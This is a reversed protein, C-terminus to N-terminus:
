TQTRRSTNSSSTTMSQQETKPVNLKFQKSCMLNLWANRNTTNLLVFYVFLVFGQLTATICFLYSFIISLHMYSCLGFIWTLGLLFFLLVSLRLQQVILQRRPNLTRQISYIICIMMFANAITVLAIPLVVGLALGYGSPYCIAAHHKFQYVSPKFSKADLLVVSLTPLLPLTWAILASILIYHNPRAVGIVTVYRQFQLFAIILMWSFIVLVSYQLAAGLILCRNWNRELTLWEDGGGSGGSLYVFLLLQLALALCLHLLVKTSAQSRWKNVLAATLFIGLLGFLSLGCGVYSIMDLLQEHAADLQQQVDELQLHAQSGGILFSFQTLHHAQCLVNFEEAGNGSCTTVGDSLWSKYNWYGCRSGEGFAKGRPLLFPLPSPLDVGAFGPISISLVKSRPRGSPQEAAEVFLGAHAYVKLIVYSAGREKLQRWLQEPVYTATELNTDRRLHKLNKNTYLFRYWFGSGSAQRDAAPSSYISIGTINACTPNVYFVSLNNSMLAQVGLNAYNLTEVGKGTSVLAESAARGCNQTPVLEQPLADMYDEFRSLLSNTANLHASLRLVQADSSMIERCISVLEAGLAASRPQQELLKAIIRATSYVDVPSLQGHAQSLLYQLRNLPVPKSRNSSDAAQLEFGLQYLQRSLQNGARCNLRKLPQWQASANCFRRRPLGYEDLCLDRMTAWEGARTCEFHNLHPEFISRGDAALVEYNHQFDQAECLGVPQVKMNHENSAAKVTSHNRAQWQQPPYHQVTSWTTSPTLRVHAQSPWLWCLLCFQWLM